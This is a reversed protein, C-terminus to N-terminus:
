QVSTHGEDDCRQKLESLYARDEAKDMFFQNEYEVADIGHRKPEAPFDLNDLEGSFHLRNVSWQALSIKFLPKEEAPTCGLKHLGRTFAITALVAKKLLKRRNTM